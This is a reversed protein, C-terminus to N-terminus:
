PVYGFVSVMVPDTTFVVTCIVILTPVTKQRGVRGRDGALTFDPPFPHPRDLCDFHTPVVRWVSM